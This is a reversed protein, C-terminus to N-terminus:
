HIGFLGRVSGSRIESPGFDTRCGSRQHNAGKPTRRKPLQTESPFGEFKNVIRDMEGITLEGELAAALEARSEALLTKVREQVAQREESLATGYMDYRPLESQIADIDTREMLEKLRLKADDVLGKHHERLAEIAPKAEEFREGYKEFKELAVSVTQSDNSAKLIDLEAVLTRITTEKRQELARRWRLMGEGYTASEELTDAITM